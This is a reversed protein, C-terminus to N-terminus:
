KKKNIKKHKMFFCQLLLRFVYNDINLITIFNIFNHNYNPVSIYLFEIKDKEHTYAGHYM